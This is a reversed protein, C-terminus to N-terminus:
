CNSMFHYIPVGLWTSNNIFALDYPPPTGPAMLPADVSTQGFSLPGKIIRGFTSMYNYLLGM